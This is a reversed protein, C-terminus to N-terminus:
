GQKYLFGMLQARYYSNLIDTQSITVSPMAGEGGSNMPMPSQSKGPLLVIAGQGQSPKEYNAYQQIPEPSRAQSQSSQIQVTDIKEAATISDSPSDSSIQSPTGSPILTAAPAPAPSQTPAPSPTSPSPMTGGGQSYKQLYKQYRSAAQPTHVNPQSGGPLSPWGLNRSLKPFVDTQLGGSKLSELLKVEGGEGYVVAMFNRMIKIQNEMSFKEIAPNLGASVARERLYSSHFQFAGLAGTESGKGIYSKAKAIAQDITMDSLGPVEGIGQVSNPGGEGGSITSMLAKIEPPADGPILQGAAEGGTAGGGGPILNKIANEIDFFLGNLSPIKKLIESLNEVVKNKDAEQSPVGMIKATLKVGESVIWKFADWVPTVFPKFAEWINKLIEFFKRITDIISNINKLLFLVLSGILINGFYQKIKDWFPIQVNPITNALGSLWNPKKELEGEGKRFRERNSTIRLSDTYKKRLNLIKKLTNKIQVLVKRISKLISAISSPRNTQTSRQESQDQGPPLLKDVSITKISGRSAKVIASSKNETEKGSPKSDITKRNFIKDSVEKGNKKKDDSSKFLSSAVSALVPLM